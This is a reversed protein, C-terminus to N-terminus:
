KKLYTIASLYAGQPDQFTCFRGVNPIDMPPVIVKAGMQGALKATADVDEVTVYIGWHAPSGAIHPPMAM